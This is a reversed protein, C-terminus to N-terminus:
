EALYGRVARLPWGRLFGPERAGVRRTLGTSWRWRRPIARNSTPRVTPRRSYVWGRRSRACSGLAGGTWETARTRYSSWGLWAARASALSSRGASSCKGTSNVGWKRNGLVVTEPAGVGVEPEPGRRNEWLERPCWMENGTRASSRSHARPPVRAAKQPVCERRCPQLCAPRPTATDNRGPNTM